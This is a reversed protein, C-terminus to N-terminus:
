FGWWSQRFQKVVVTEFFVTLMWCFNNNAHLEFRVSHKSTQKEPDFISSLRRAKLSCKIKMWPPDLGNGSVNFRQCSRLLSTKSDLLPSSTLLPQFLTFIQHKVSMVTYLQISRWWQCFNNHNRASTYIINNHLQMNTRKDCFLLTMRWINSSRSGKWRLLYLINPSIRM